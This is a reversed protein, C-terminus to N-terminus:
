YEGTLQAVSLQGWLASMSLCFYYSKHPISWVSFLGLLGVKWLFRELEERLKRIFNHGEAINNFIHQQKFSMNKSVIVKLKALYSDQDQSLQSSMEYDWFGAYLRQRPWNTAQFM